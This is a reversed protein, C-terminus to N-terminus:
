FRFDLTLTGYDLATDEEPAVVDEDLSDTSFLWNFHMGWSRREYHLGGIVAHVVRNYDISQSDAFTNGDLLITYAAYSTRLAVSAYFACQKGEQPATTAYSLGYGLPDPLHVFGAPLHFGFRSELTVKAGTYLNGLNGGVAVAVDASRARALKHKREWYLNVVPENDLQNSWGEPDDGGILSHFGSQVPEGLAASGVIGYLWGFGYLDRDDYAIWANQAALLGAYPVDNLIPEPRELEEPTQLNQGVSWSERFWLDDRQEPLFWAAMKKGFAPTGKVLSWDHAPPGNKQVFIGNSFQNDSNFIADNAWEISWTVGRPDRTEAAAHTSCLLSALAAALKWSRATPQDNM